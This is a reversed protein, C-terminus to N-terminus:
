ACFELAAALLVDACTQVSALDVWEEVAHAGTGAPGFLVAPIGAAWLTAADTWYPVGALEPVKGMGSLGAKQLVQVIEAEVPTEMPPRDLGRKLRAKFSSDAATLGQLLGALEAEVKEPTEEPLTRRELELRCSEPYSSLEQGGQILSAHLSGSKLLPHTPQSRLRLDLQELEQLVRGMKLIADIGLDPMSGHAARGTVEIEFWVFGRHAIILQLETPEAIVAADARYRRAIEMTGVGAYEEDMVATVIVDGSLPHRAAQAAALMCAALGGKMDYAGRGYLRGDRVQPTHPSPMGVVSVTDMHGNLMLTKGGGRGRAIGVVNPRGPFPEHMEVELGAKDLWGAIFRAVEGEGPAGPVLDPNISNLSVLDSVLQELETMITVENSLDRGYFAVAAAPESSSL